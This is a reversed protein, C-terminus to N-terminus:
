INLWSMIKVLEDDCSQAFLSENNHRLISSVLACNNALSKASELMFEDTQDLPLEISSVVDDVNESCLSTLEKIQEAYAVSKADAKISMLVDRAKELCAIVTHVLQRTNTIYVSESPTIGEDALWQDCENVADKMQMIKTELKMGIYVANSTPCTAILQATERLKGICVVNPADINGYVSNLLNTVLLKLHTHLSAGISGPVATFTEVLHTLTESLPALAKLVAADHKSPNQEAKALFILTAQRDLSAAIQCLVPIYSDLVFVQVDGENSLTEIQVKSASIKRKLTEVEQQLTM